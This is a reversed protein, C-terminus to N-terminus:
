FPIRRWSISAIFPSCGPNVAPPPLTEGGCCPVPAPFPALGMTAPVGSLPLLGANRALPFVDLHMHAVYPHAAHWARPV